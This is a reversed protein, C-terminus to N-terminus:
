SIEKLLRGYTKALRYATAGWTDEAREPLAEDVLEIALKTVDGNDRNGKGRPVSLGKWAGPTILDRSVQCSMDMVTENLARLDAVDQKWRLWKPAVIGTNAMNITEYRTVVEKFQQIAM